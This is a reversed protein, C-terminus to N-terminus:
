ILVTVSSVLEYCNDVDKTPQIKSPKLGGETDITLLQSQNSFLNSQCKKLYDLDDSYAAKEAGEQLGAVASDMVTLVQSYLVQASVIVYRGAFKTNFTTIYEPTLTNSTNQAEENTPSTIQNPSEIISIKGFEPSGAFFTKVMNNGMGLKLFVKNDQTYLSDLRGIYFLYNKDTSSKLYGCDAVTLNSLSTTRISTSCSSKVSNKSISPLIIM